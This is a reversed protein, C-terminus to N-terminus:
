EVAMSSLRRLEARLEHIMRSNGDEDGMRSLQEKKYALEACVQYFRSTPQFRGRFLASIRAGAQRWASCAVRYQGGTLSGLGIEENLHRVLWQQERRIAWLIFFFMFLWGTWDFLTGLILGGSGHLLNGLLNHVSHFAIALSLGLAPALIRRKFGPHLRAAALGIGTFATYFPHQWGVLGVRILVMGALGPYGHALYGDRYIYLTNESAAFGLAVVGAYIIGDLLSDFESRLAVFIVVLALGKAIEEVVPAILSGTALDTATKSQTITYIGLAFTSNIVLAAAAAIVAGWIFVGGLLPLPEKEYRDLWYLFWAFLLMPAFGFFFSLLLGM